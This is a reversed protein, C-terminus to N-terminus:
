EILIVRLDNVNTRTPGTVFLAGLERLVGYSDNRRLADRAAPRNMRARQEPGLLAGANDESGDIGDTDAALWWVPAGDPLELALALAFEGNRGGRGRGVVTVTTEGGSLLACPREFPQGHALVQRVLAAHVGAVARAEGTMSGSLVHASWGRGALADAAAELATQASAIVVNVVHELRPDGPSPTEEREGRVGAELVARAAAHDIGYRELVALADAYRSGDAATPGSAIVSPDDGVVDSVLLALVPAPAAALALRGGKVRSLHKRVANMETIDAGSRLLAETLQALEPLGLGDPATLLASGGGSILCLVLDDEGAGALLRLIRETAAAGADDPVPHAAEVVDIRRTPLGHGYRTIVLGELAVTEPYRDEVARAMAAAAKGAGVVLLRGRPPDPLHARVGVEPDAARIGAEFAVRLDDSPVSVPDWGVAGWGAAGFRDPGSRPTRM